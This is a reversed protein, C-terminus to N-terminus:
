CCGCGCYRGVVVVVVLLEGSDFVLLLLWDGLAGGEGGEVCVGVAGPCPNGCCDM